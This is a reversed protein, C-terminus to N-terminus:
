KEYESDFPPCEDYRSMIEKEVADWESVPLDMKLIEELAQRKKDMDKPYVQEVADRILSGISKGKERSERTLRDYQEETLLIQTRKVYKSM